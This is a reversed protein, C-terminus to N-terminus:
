LATAAPTASNTGQSGVAAPFSASRISKTKQNVVTIQTAIKASTAATIV